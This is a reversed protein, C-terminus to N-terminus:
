LWRNVVETLREGARQLLGREAWDAPDLRESSALDDSLHADLVDVLDPDFLV